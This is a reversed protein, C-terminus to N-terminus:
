RSVIQQCATMCSVIDLRSMSSSFESKTTFCSLYYLASTIEAAAEWYCAGWHAQWNLDGERALAVEAKLVM